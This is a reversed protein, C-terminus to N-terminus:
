RDDQLMIKIISDCLDEAFYDRSFEVTREQDKIPTNFELDRVIKQNEVNPQYVERFHENDGFWIYRIMPNYMKPKKVLKDGFLKVLRSEVEPILLDYVEEGVIVVDAYGGKLTKLHVNVECKRLEITLKDAIFKPDSETM